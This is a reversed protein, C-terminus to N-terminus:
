VECTWRFVRGWADGVLLTGHTRSISLATIAPNKKYRQRSIAQSRNLEQCLVLHREWQTSACETDGTSPSAASGQSESREEHGPLQVKTYETKWIRVIGDACGTVIVNRLDWEYKQTFCCCLVSGEAGCHTSVSALLQGKMTWLYLHMGACSVIEGTLDNIALASVGSSHAPLQTIYSLEELDWLICTQDQSGSIIVSHAESAVVCTVTDTHGYLAQKLKMHRLKDKTISVDWVCVVTSNGATIVTNSNPCSACVAEGWDALGEWVAFSKEATYNGFSCTNDYYGWCFYTNWHPPMLLKNKEVVLVEKEGCVIHGVSGHMLEKVPQVSPKLKDLKFFFPTVNNAGSTEKGTSSKHSARSPHPKTFLQKPIQGFNSIYGLVTSKKLPNKMSEADHKDPYFYPHFTNLAEAAPPGQQKYGFILDIWLHLSASVYDSELAERHMRIFEQPDGKAWPPLVVDGLSTGDQMCGFEFNNSNILFDPLYYFEPILERVDSMNDKSASEWEKQLSHFMREPVDFSGGQLAIFTQSFPEMRVLYSAVIIASSYHTCYHCQASLDGDNSDVEHYREIFKERRKQTQAGMPKSLDRFTAASSLDLTESQYDALVWPFVPYQMLDNYTRGALTNLHMLYEFNSIEGKQWKMLAAKDPAVTRRVNHIAEMLGRGKLSPVVSCLRKFAVSHDKDVFVLFVSAGNKMFIEIANEELLFRMFRAEKIDEYPWRRCGVSMASREKKLMGCIFSDRVSSPHYSGCCVDGSSSLTFGECVYLHAKGFLLVGESLIHGSVVAVCQKATVKENPALQQLIVQPEACQEPLDEVPTLAETLAPFFTLRECDSGAAETDRSPERLISIEADASALEAVGIIEEVHSSKMYLGCLSPLKKSRRLAKRRIRPRTRNPGEAADQVWGQNLFVGPGPGFLGRERLLDEEIRLWQAAMWENEYHLMQLHNKLLSESMHEGNKRYVELASFFTEMNCSSDKELKRHPLRQASSLLGAKRQRNHLKKKQSDIFVQWAKVATEEWLPSVDTMTVAGEKGAQKASLDIKYAEELGQRREFMVKSWTREVLSMLELEVEASDPADLLDTTHSSKHLFLHRWIKRTPKKHMECGFGEPFSGSRILLLCHLLCSTFPVSANYTAMIVDWHEELVHLTRLIFQKEAPSQRPRSLFYLLARNLNKYLVSVTAERQTQGREMAVAIQEAIFVLLNEPDVVFMGTYLKEVLMKSFFVVNEILIAVKGESRSKHADDRAVHTSQGEEQGTIHIIDMLFELLESQFSQKQEQCVEEPSFELLQIFPHHQDRAPTNILSDMLLIRIFDCVQKRAPHSLRAGPSEGVVVSEGNRQLGAPSEPDESPFVASALSSLFDPSTWLPDRPFLSHVLCLFQMVSGPYQVEWSDESGTVPKCIIMKVLEILVCAAETCLQVRQQNTSSDIVSQLMSDIDVQGNTMDAMPLDAKGLLLAAIAGYVQPLSIHSLLLKPLVTFGPCTCSLCEHSWFRTKLNGIIELPMEMNEVLTGLSVGEKFKAMIAPNSLFHILLQLVLLVTSSHTQRQLFLLFWDSGLTFFVEEQINNLLPTDSIILSSLVELLQNRIWVTRAPTQSLAQSQDDSIICPFATNENVTPHLLTHILFLGLRRIDETSFHGQLLCSLITCILTVKGHTVAPDHLQFLLRTMLNLSHIAEANRPDGSSSNLIDVFHNLVSIDLSEPTKQWVEFDCLLDQLATLDHVYSTGLEITGVIALVLQFTRRTVLQAKMKLLFAFLKYGGIRKMEQRMVPNTDLVSLLVKVSAYLSSDDSAMAVLSLVVAAGGIYQFSTAASISMFTRVGFHAVLAAGITRATGILHQSINQALFVPTSNDRSTIGMEKAILRCDVENYEDRIEAITTVTSVAPNIGFSIREPSVLRVQADVALYNGLYKTGQTYMIEVSDSSLVEEFLYTPGIRWILAARQKWIPPTGIIGCVDIVASPDMAICQGPFPQIYRMKSTGIVEGDLYATVKCSKKIDKAMAVVLYHWQGPILQRSCKFRVTVPLTTAARVEPEMMDLFQYAEEETSIVLCGDSASISVSLCSFQQEARSMHRVLNLLRVPHADCASSFRSILFWCSFSLGASPPFGRCDSGIGGTPISDASVGKVTALSPLFLCGYGSDTMDFEVFSPSVSVKHPWLSRPSTLSVLSIIRHLPVPVGGGSSTQLLSFGRKLPRKSVKTDGDVFDKAQDTCHGNTLPDQCSTMAESFSTPVWNETSCKFPDGFCLFRRLSKHDISQSALKEFVRVVPLHLSLTSSSLIAGCHNLLTVLLGSECMIQRNQESKVMAQVHHAVALQLEASLQPDSPCYIHPLLTMIVKIGGPHLITLDSSFRGSETSVSSVSLVTGNRDWGQFDEQSPQEETSYSSLTEQKQEIEVAEQLGTYSDVDMCVGTAFQELFRLLRVCDQLQAPLASSEAVEVFQLFSRHGIGVDEEVMPRSSFCGLRLLAEALREYQGTAHFFHTNILNLHVALAVTHLALLLLDMLAHHSISAWVGTPQELLAGEMDVVMSLLANFGCATRFANLSNPNDLVRLISQLLDHKLQIETETSSCLAGVATSMFEEPNMQALQELVCLAPGRFQEDDLFIKIYPIMGLDKICVTNKISRLSLAAVVNLMNTTLQRDCDRLKTKGTIGAKRLIKARKRLELLLLEMLGSDSLVDTLLTSHEVLRRLCRLAAVSFAQCVGEKLVGHVKRLVDHPIYSLQIVVTELLEFFLGHVGVPKQWVCEALQALSQLTWELLFFNAKDWSWIKQVTRLIQTCTLTSSSRLFSSQIIQFAKLNKVAFGKTLPPDFKFDPPQPNNVCLAVKLEAKGFLTLSAILDLLDEVPSFHEEATEEECSFFSLCTACAMISQLVTYGDNNEFEEFLASSIPYSDKVFSFVSVAVEALVPGPVQKNMKQLNQICIKMCNKAQLAPITNPVQAASVARLVRSAQRRWMPSCQDWFSTLAIILCQLEQTEVMEEVFQGLRCLQLVVQTFIDQFSCKQDEAQGKVTRPPLAVFLYLCKVLASALGSEIAATSGAESTSLISMAKLLLWGKSNDHESHQFFQELEQRAEEAPREAVRHQIHFVLTEGVQSAVVQLDWVESGSSSESVQIFLPLLLDLQQERGEASARRLQRLQQRLLMAGDLGFVPGAERGVETYEKGRKRETAEVLDGSAGNQKNMQDMDRGSAEQEKTPPMVM